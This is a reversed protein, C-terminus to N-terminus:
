ISYSRIYDYFVNNIMYYTKTKYNEIDWSVTNQIIIAEYYFCLLM